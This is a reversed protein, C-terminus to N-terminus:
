LLQLYERYREDDKGIHGQVIERELEKRRRQKRRRVLREMAGEVQGGGAEIAELWQDIGRGCTPM